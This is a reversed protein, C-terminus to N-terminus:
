ETFRYLFSRGKKGAKTIIGITELLNIAYWAKRSTLKCVKAFDKTVFEDGLKYPILSTYDRYNELYFEREIRLPIRDYRVSGRKKDNSWGNLLRFEDIDLLVLKIRLNPNTLYNKIKYLEFFADYESGKHPSKRRSKVEHTDKDIWNIWKNHPIPYVITVVHEKLFYDLKSRLKDFNATQIEIIHDGTCIDAVYSDIIVEHFDINPEYYEKLVRHVTKEQLTGIGMKINNGNIIKDKIEIFRNNDTMTIEM